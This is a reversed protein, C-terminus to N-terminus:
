KVLLPSKHGYFWSLMGVQQAQVLGSFHGSM